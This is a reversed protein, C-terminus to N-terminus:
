ALDNVVSRLNVAKGNKKKSRDAADMFAFIELTEEERVPPIGTEFFNVIAMVLAKYGESPGLVINGKEGFAIGGYQHEGSRTGRFAGIRGDKWIGVVYETDNTQYRSVKVCGTGMVTFLLEVGHIAYWYLDPHTKELIAPSFTDAGLVKGVKGAVVEQAASLYRISSSTFVPVKNEHAFRFIAVADKYSAAFPKDVFVPKGAKIVQIAQELHLRGDNTNLLVVDVKTLLEDVSNVIEVGYKKVKETCGPIQNVSSKIDMSGRPCAAIVKYGLFDANEEPDNLLRTFTSSHSTDLGIIGVRKGTIFTKKERRSFSVLSPLLSIGMGAMAAKKMFELRSYKSKEM